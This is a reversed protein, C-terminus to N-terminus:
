LGQRGKMKAESGKCKCLISFNILEAKKTGKEGDSEMENRLNVEGPPRGQGSQRFNSGRMGPFFINKEPLCVSM